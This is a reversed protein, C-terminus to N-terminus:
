VNPGTYHICLMTLDDAQEAKGVFDQINKKVGALIEDPSLLGPANLADLM